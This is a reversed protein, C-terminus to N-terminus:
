NKAIRHELVIRKTEVPGIKKIEETIRTTEIEKREKKKSATENLNISVLSSSLQTTCKSEITTMRSDFTASSKLTKGKM